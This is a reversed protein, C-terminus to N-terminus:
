KGVSAILKRDLSSPPSSPLGELTVVRGKASGDGM